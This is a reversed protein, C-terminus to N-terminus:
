VDNPWHLGDPSQHDADSLVIPVDSGRVQRYCLLAPFQNIEATGQKGADFLNDDAPRTRRRDLCDFVKGALFRVQARGRDIVLMHGQSDMTRLDAQPWTSYRLSQPRFLTFKIACSKPEYELRM